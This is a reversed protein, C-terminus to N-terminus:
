WYPANGAKADEEAWAAKTTQKQSYVREAAAYDKREVAEREQDDLEKWFRNRQALVAQSEQVAKEHLMAKQLIIGMAQDDAGWYTELGTLRSQLEEKKGADEEQAVEARLHKLEEKRRALEAEFRKWFARRAVMEPDMYRAAEREEERKQRDKEADAEAQKSWLEDQRACEAAEREKQAELLPFWEADSM